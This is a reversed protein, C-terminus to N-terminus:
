LKMSAQGPSGKFGHNYTETDILLSMGNQKGSTTGRTFLAMMKARQDPNERIDPHFDVQFQKWNIKKKFDCKRGGGWAEGLYM